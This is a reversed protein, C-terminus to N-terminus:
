WFIVDETEYLIFIFIIYIKSVTMIMKMRSPLDNSIIEKINRDSTLIKNVKKMVFM